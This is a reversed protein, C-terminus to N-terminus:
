RIRIVLSTETKGWDAWPFDDKSTTKLAQKIDSVKAEVKVRQYEEPLEEPAVKLVVPQRTQQYITSYTGKIKTEGREQMALLIYQKLKNSSNVKSNLRVKLDSIMSKIVEAEKDLCKAAYAAAELKTKWDAEQALWQQFLLQSQEDKEADSLEENNVVESIADELDILDQTKNWLNNSM